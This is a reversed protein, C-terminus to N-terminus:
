FFAFLRQACVKWSQMSTVASGSDSVKCALLCSRLAFCQELLEQIAGPDGLRQSADFPNPPPRPPARPAAKPAGLAAPEPPPPPPLIAATFSFLKTPTAAQLASPPQATDCFDPPLESELFLSDDYDGEEEEEEEDEEEDIDEADLFNFDNYESLGQRMHLMPPPVDDSMCGSFSGSMGILHFHRRKPSPPRPPRDLFFHVIGSCNAGALRPNRFVNFFFML